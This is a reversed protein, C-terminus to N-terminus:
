LKRCIARHLMRKVSSESIGYREAVEKLPAGAARAAIMERVADEGLRDVVRRPVTVNPKARVSVHPDQALRERDERLWLRTRQLLDALDQRNSYTWTLDVMNTRSWGSVQWTLANPSTASELDHANSDRPARASEAALGDLLANTRAIVYEEYAGLLLDFPERLDHGIIKGADVYLKTFFAKNLM